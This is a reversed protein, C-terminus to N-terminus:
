PGDENERMIAWLDSDIQTYPMLERENGKM